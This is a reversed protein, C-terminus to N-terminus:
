EKTLEAVKMFASHECRISNGRRRNFEKEKWDDGPKREPFRIRFKSAEEFAEQAQKLSQSKTIMSSIQSAIEDEISDYDEGREKIADEHELLFTLLTKHYEFDRHVRANQGAKSLVSTIIKTTMLSGLMLAIIGQAGIKVPRQPIKRLRWGRRIISQPAFYDKCEGNFLENWRQTLSTLHENGVFQILTEYFRKATAVDSCYQWALSYVFSAVEQDTLLGSEIASFLESESSCLKVWKQVVQDRPIKSDERISELLARAEQPTSCIEPGLCTRVQDESVGTAKAVKKVDYESM